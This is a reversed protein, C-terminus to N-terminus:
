VDITIRCRWNDDGAELSVDSYTAAKPVPGISRVASARAVDFFGGIGGDESEELEVSVPVAGLADVVYIVEDLLAVLTAADDEAPELAVPIPETAAVNSTDAFTGVMARVAEALCAARTPAWAEIILDATHPLIRHGVSM